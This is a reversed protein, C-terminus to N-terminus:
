AADKARWLVAGVIEEAKYLHEYAEATGWRGTEGAVADLERLARRILSYTEDLRGGTLKRDMPMRRKGKRQAKRLPFPELSEVPLGLATALRVATDYSCTEQKRGNGPNVKCGLAKPVQSKSIGTRRGIEAYTLGDSRQLERFRKRLPKTAVWGAGMRRAAKAAGTTTVAGIPDSRLTEVVSELLGQQDAAGLLRWQFRRDHPVEEGDIILPNRECAPHERRDIVGIGAEAFVKLRGYQDALEKHGRRQQYLRGVEARDAVDSLTETDHAEVLSPLHSEMLGIEDAPSLEGGTRVLDTPQRETM